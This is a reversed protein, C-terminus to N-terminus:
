EKSGPTSSGSGKRPFPHFQEPTGGDHHSMYEAHGTLADELQRPTINLAQACLDFIKDRPLRKGFRFKARSVISACLWSSPTGTKHWYNLPTNLYQFDEETFRFEESGEQIKAARNFHDVQAPHNESQPMSAGQTSSTHPQNETPRFDPQIAGPGAVLIDGTDKRLIVRFRYAIENSENTYYVHIGSFTASFEQATDTERTLTVDAEMHAFTQIM